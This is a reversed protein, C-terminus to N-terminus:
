QSAIRAVIVDDADYTQGLLYVSGLSGTALVEGWGLDHYTSYILSGNPALKSLFTRGCSPSGALPNLLPQTCGHSEGTVYTDGTSDAAVAFGFGGGLYTSYVLGSGSPNLETVFVNENWYTKGMLANSTPFSKSRTFGTIIANKAKDVTIGSSSDFAKGGIYTSYILQRKEVDIKSVFADSAGALKKQFANSTIPFDRSSTWGTIYIAGSQDMSMDTVNDQDNGGFYSSFLLKRGSANLKMLFIEHGGAPTGQIPNVVQPLTLGNRTGGVLYACGNRVAIGDVGSQEALYTSYILKSGTSDLKAIFAGETLQFIPNKTPFDFSGTLGAVYVSGSPGTAVALAFESSSGGLFTSFIIKGDPSLKLIFADNYVGLERQLPNKTPFDASDTQGVIILNGKFDVTADYPREGKSGGFRRRMVIKPDIVLPLRHDYEGVFFSVGGGHSLIYTSEVQKNIGDIMQCSRPKQKQIQDILIGQDATMQVNNGGLVKMRIQKPDAGPSVILDYELDGNRQYFVLDIGPYIAHYAIKGFQSIGTVSRNVVFYNSKGLLREQGVPSVPRSGEFRLRVVNAKNVSSQIHDAESKSANASNEIRSNEASVASVFAIESKEFFVLLGKARALFIVDKDAQGENKEFIVPMSDFITKAKLLVAQKIIPAIPINKENNAEILFGQSCLLFLFWSQRWIRM